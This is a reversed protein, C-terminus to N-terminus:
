ITPPYIWVGIVRSVQMSPMNSINASDNNRCAPETSVVPAGHARPGFPEASPSGTIIGHRQYQIEPLSASQAMTACADTRTALLARSRPTVAATGSKRLKSQLEEVRRRLARLERVNQKATRPSPIPVTDPRPSSITSIASSIALSESM